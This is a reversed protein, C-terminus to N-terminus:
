EGRETPEPDIAGGHAELIRRRCGDTFGVYQEISEFITFAM